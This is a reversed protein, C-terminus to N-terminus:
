CNSSKCDLFYIADELTIHQKKKIYYFHFFLKYIKVYDDLTDITLSIDTSKMEFEPLLVKINFKDSNKKIFQTVHELDENKNTLKLTEFLAKKTVVEVGSGYPIGDFYVYDSNNNIIETIGTDILRPETLPNDATVRVIIDAASKEAVECFRELVNDLSGRHVKIGINLGVLEILDDTKETSTAIWVEDVLESSKVKEVVRELLTQGCLDKLVKGPLRSSSLRAQIVAIKKVM